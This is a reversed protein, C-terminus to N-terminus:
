RVPTVLTKSVGSAVLAYIWAGVWTQYVGKRPDQFFFCGKKLRIRQNRPALPSGQKLFNRDIKTTYALIGQKHFGGVPEISQGLSFGYTFLCINWFKYGNKLKVSKHRFFMVSKGLLAFERKANFFAGIKAIMPVLMSTRKQWSHRSRYPVYICIRKAKCTFHTLLAWSYKINSVVFIRLMCEINIFLSLATFFICM